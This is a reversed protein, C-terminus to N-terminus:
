ATEKQNGYYRKKYTESGYKNVAEDRTLGAKERATKAKFPIRQLQRQKTDGRVAIRALFEWSIGTLPCADKENESIPFDTQNKHWTIIRNMQEVSMKKAKPTMSELIRKTYISWPVQEEKEPKTGTYIGENHYMRATKVGEVRELIKHWFEGYLIPWQDLARLSEEAFIAGVRQQELKNYSETMQKLDYETNYPLGTERTYKWVDKAFWDYIPYAVPVNSSIYCESKKRTMITFRAPSEAARIGALNICSIGRKAYNDAILDCMDQMVSCDRVANSKFPLGDPNKYNPDYIFKSGALHTTAWEPIERVWIDKELPNWAYWFPSTISCANRVIFPIAYWKMSVEEMDFVEKVFKLTSQGEIEHDFFTAEVPLKGLERAVEITLYLLATSDKGGSFNVIVKDYTKYLHHIREKAAEVVNIDLFHKDKHITKKM